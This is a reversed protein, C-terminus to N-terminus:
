KPQQPAKKTKKSPPEVTIKYVPGTENPPLPHVSYGTSQLSFMTSELLPKTCQLVDTEANLLWVQLERLEAVAQLQTHQKRLKTWTDTDLLVLKM